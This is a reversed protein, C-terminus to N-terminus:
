AQKRTECHIHRFQYNALVAGTFCQSKYINNKSHTFPSWVRECYSGNNNASSSLINLTQDLATKNVKRRPSTRVVDFNKWLKIGSVSLNLANYFKWQQQLWDNVRCSAQSNNSSSCADWRRWSAAWRKDEDEIEKRWSVNKFTLIRQLFFTDSFWEHEQLWQWNVFSFIWFYFVSLM